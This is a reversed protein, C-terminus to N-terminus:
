RFVTGQVRDHFFTRSDKVLAAARPNPDGHRRVEERLQRRIQAAMSLTGLGRADTTAVPAREMRRLVQPQAEVALDHVEAVDRDALSLRSERDVYDSFEQFASARQVRMALDTMRVNFRPGLLNGPVVTRLFRRQDRGDVDLLRMARARGRHGARADLRMEWYLHAAFRSRHSEVMKLPVFYHHAVVDAALHCLCGLFFARHRDQSAETFRDFFRSWNHSHREYSALNKALERDPGLTGQLFCRPHAAALAGMAGLDAARALVDLGMEVHTIPGFALAPLPLLVLLVLVLLGAM